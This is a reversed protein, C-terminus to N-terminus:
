SWDWLFGPFRNREDLDSRVKFRHKSERMSSIIQEAVRQQEGSLDKEFGIVVCQGFPNRDYSSVFANLPTIGHGVARDVSVPNHHWVDQLSKGGDHVGVISRRNERARLKMFNVLLPM